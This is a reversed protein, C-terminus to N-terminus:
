PDLGILIQNNNYNLFIGLFRFYKFSNLIIQDILSFFIYFQFKARSTQLEIQLVRSSLQCLLDISDLACYCVFEFKAVFFVCNTFEPVRCNLKSLNLTQKNYYYFKLFLKLCDSHFNKLWWIWVYFTKLYFQLILSSVKKNISFQERNALYNM